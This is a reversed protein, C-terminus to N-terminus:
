DTLVTERVMKADIGAANLAKQLERIRRQVRRYLPKQQLGMVRAVSALSHGELWHMRVIAKDESPLDELASELAKLMRTKEELRRSAAFIRAPNTDDAVEMDLAVARARPPRNPLAAALESVERDSLNVGLKSRLQRAAELVGLGDRHLLAELQEAVEGKRRAAASPRWKGTEAIRHDRYLNWIVVTLYGALSARGEFRRLIAGDNELLRLKVWGSFDDAADGFLSRKRCVSGVIREVLALNQELVNRPDM